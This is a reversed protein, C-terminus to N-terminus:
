KVMYCLHRDTRSVKTRVAGGARRKRNLVCVALVPGRARGLYSDRQGAQWGSVQAGVGVVSPRM